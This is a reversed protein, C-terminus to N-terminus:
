TLYNPWKSEKKSDINSDLPYREQMTCIVMRSWSQFKSLRKEGIYGFYLVYCMFDHIEFIEQTKEIFDELSLM